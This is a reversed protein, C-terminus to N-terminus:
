SHSTPLSNACLGLINHTRRSGHWRIYDCLIYPTYPLYSAGIAALPKQGLTMFTLAVLAKRLTGLRRAQRVLVDRLHSLCLLQSIYVIYLAVMSQNFPCINAGKTPFCGLAFELNVTISPTQEAGFWHTVLQIEQAVLLWLFSCGYNHTALM